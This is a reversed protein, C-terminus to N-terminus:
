RQATVSVVTHDRIELLSYLDSAGGRKVFRHARILCPYIQCSGHFTAFM